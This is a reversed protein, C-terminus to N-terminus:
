GAATVDEVIKKKLRCHPCVGCAVPRYCTHAELIKKSIKDYVYKVIEVKSMYNLPSIVRTQSGLFRLVSNVRDSFEQSTDPYTVTSNNAILIHAFQKQGVLQALAILALNRGIVEFAAVDEVPTDMGMPHDALVRALGTYTSSGDRGVVMTTKSINLFIAPKGVMESFKMVAGREGSAASQGYDVHLSTIDWGEQAGILLQASSDFGGGNLLLIKGPIKEMKKSLSRRQFYM